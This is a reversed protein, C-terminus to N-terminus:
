TKGTSSNTPNADASNEPQDAAGIVSADAITDSGVEETIPDNM